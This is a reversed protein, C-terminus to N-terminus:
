PVACRSMAVVSAGESHRIGISRCDGIGQGLVQPSVRLRAVREITDGPPPEPTLPALSGPQHLLREILELLQTHDFAYLRTISAHPVTAAALATYGWV